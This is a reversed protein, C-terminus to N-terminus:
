NMIEHGHMVNENIKPMMQSCESKKLFWNERHIRDMNKETILEIKLSM